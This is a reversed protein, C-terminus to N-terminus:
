LMKMFFQMKSRQRPSFFYLETCSDYVFRHPCVQRNWRILGMGAAGDFENPKARGPGVGGVLHGYARDGSTQKGKDEAGVLRKELRSPGIGWSTAVAALSKPGAYMTLAAKTVRSPLHPFSALLLESTLAGLLANGLTALPGNHAHLKAQLEPTVLPLDHYNTHTRTTGQPPAPM